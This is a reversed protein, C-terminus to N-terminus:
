SFFRKLSSLFGKPKDGDSTVTFPYSYVPSGNISCCFRYQGSPVYSGDTGKLIWGKSIRDYNPQVDLTADDDFVLHGDPSYIQYKTAVSGTFGFPKLLRMHFFIVRHHDRNITSSFMGVPWLDDEDNSGISCVNAIRSANPTSPAAQWPENPAEATGDLCCQLIRAEMLSQLFSADSTHNQRYLSQTSNLQLRMGKVLETEELYVVLTEKGLELAFNVENRCNRSAVSAPSMFALFIRCRKLHDEIYEPWETGAEIGSDYWIRFGQQIMKEVIPIVTPADKHAYSLFIYDENGEYVSM